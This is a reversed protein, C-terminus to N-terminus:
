TKRSSSRSPPLQPLSRHRGSPPPRKSRGQRGPVSGGGSSDVDSSDEPCARKGSIPAVPMEVDPSSLPSNVQQGHEFVLSAEHLSLESACLDGWSSVSDLLESTGGDEVTVGDANVNVNVNSEVCAPQSENQSEAGCANASQSNISNSENSAHESVVNDKPVDTGRSNNCVVASNNVDSLNSIQDTSVNNLGVISENSLVHGNVNNLSVFSENSLAHENVPIDDPSRSVLEHLISQSAPEEDVEDVLSDSDVVMPPPVSAPAPAPTPAPAPPPGPSTASGWPRPCEKAFHTDSKCLRCLGRIPCDAAKHPGRCIDCELPQDRYWVKLRMKDFRLNRPIATGLVMEVIRTGTFLHTLGVWHQLHVGKVEGYARLVELLEDDDAEM